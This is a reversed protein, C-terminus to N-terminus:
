ERAGDLLAKAERLDATGFGETFSAYAREVDAWASGTRRGPERRALSLASRLEFSRAGQRRAIELARLLARKAEVPDAEALLDGRLRHLESSWAREDSVEVFAIADDLEGLARESQGAEAYVLALCPTFATRGYPGAGLLGSLRSSLAEAHMPASQPDLATAAWHYLSLARGQWVRSGVDRAVHLASRAIAFTKEPEGRWMHALATITLATSLHFPDRLTEARALMKAALSMAEDPAGSLWALVVMHGGSLGVIPANVIRSADSDTRAGDLVLSAETLAVRAAALQGRFLRASSSLVAAEAAAIPDGLRALVETVEAEYDEVNRLEGRLFHCRQTGLLAGLLGRDDGLKRALEATRVFTRELQPDQSGQLAIIAPGVQKLVALETRDSEGSAPLKALLARARTFHTLADARGFRRMAREGAVCYHHVAKAIMQAHDFHIALEGAISESAGGYAAELGEAIRRHWSRKTASAVRALATDRYLAHVFEYHSQITGDPWPEAAVFRLFRQEGALGECLSDVEDGTLDLAHGVSGAAFQGGVLSAAELIHQENLKLRDIQIDILQRVTDPRRSAVEAVSAHLQWAGDVLRIMRRNELDDLVAITFLPNGGTMRHITGDLDAPLRTGPFRRARCEAVAAESLTGLRLTIAQKHARLEAIVKALGDGKTLEAQRCTAIVLVRAPERRGGLMAVLDATSRDSWQMDELVLVLPKDAALVDFADALERLMRAQTAGQVRLLLPRLKEDELLGPMQALWTPAHRGLLDVVREGHPGRCVAGLAALVPLYAEGTGFQEVCAGRAIWAGHPGAFQAVFADTLATKGIGPEGTVFVLQRKRGLTAEFARRLVDMEDGRGILNLTGTPMEVQKPEDAPPKQPEIGLLLRYGRGVVTEIVQEGLVRRLEGVHTRLLSESMAIKGWIAEVLEEQTVLRLPNATLYRLIAFPKRRLKLEERGRYLREDRVDLRFPGFLRIDIGRGEWERSMSPLTAM